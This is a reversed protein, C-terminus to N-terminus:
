YYINCLRCTLSLVNKPFSTAFKYYILSYKQVDLFSAAFKRVKHSLITMLKRFSTTSDSFLHIPLLNKDIWNMELKM